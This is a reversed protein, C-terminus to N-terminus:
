KTPPWPTAEFPGGRKEAERDRKAGASKLLDLIAELRMRTHKPALPHPRDEAGPIGDEVYALPTKGTGDLPNVDCGADLIAAVAELNGTQCALHFASYGGKARANLDAGARVLLDIVNGDAGLASLLLPTYGCHDRAHVESGSEILFKVCDPNGWWAAHHLPTQGHADRTTVRYGCGIWRRVGDADGRRAADHLPMWRWFAHIGAAFLALAAVWLILKRNRSVAFAGDCSNGSPM